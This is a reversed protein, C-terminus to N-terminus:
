GKKASYENAVSSQLIRGTQLKEREKECRRETRREEKQSKPKGVM